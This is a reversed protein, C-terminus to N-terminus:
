RPSQSRRRRTASRRSPRIRPPSSPRPPATRPTAGGSNRSRPRPPTSTRASSPSTPRSAPSSPRTAGPRSSSSSRTRTTSSRAAATRPSRPSSPGPSSDFAPRAYDASEYLESLRDVAAGSRPAVQQGVAEYRHEVKVRDLPEVAELAARGELTAWLADIDRRHRFFEGLTAFFTEARAYKNSVALLTAKSVRDEGDAYLAWESAEREGLAMGLEKEAFARPVPDPADKLAISSAAGMVLGVEGSEDIFVSLRIGAKETALELAIPQPFDDSGFDAAARAQAM